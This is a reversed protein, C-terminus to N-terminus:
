VCEECCCAEYQGAPVCYRRPGPVPCEVTEWPCEGWSFRYDCWAPEERDGGGEEAGIEIDSEEIGSSRREDDGTGLCAATALTFVVFTSWLCRGFYQM